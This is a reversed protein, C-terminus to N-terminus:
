LKYSQRFLHTKLQVKFSDYHEVQRVGVPLSNWLKPAAISFAREGYNVRCRPVHLLSQDSSRLPRNTTYPTILERIYIPARGHLAKWTLTCIKFEIRAAVPLWHLKQLISTISAHRSPRTVTRAATNQVRQLRQILRNPLKYLLANGCDLRSSIFAHVMKEAAERTLTGRIASLNHLHYYCTACINRM